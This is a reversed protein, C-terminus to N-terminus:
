EFLAPMALKRVKGTTTLPLQDASIFLYRRPRKYGALAERCLARLEAEDPTSAAEPVILAAVIEDREADPVPVVFAQAVDAHSMLTEEVEAPAVNIGGTKIMEKLRGRFHLYGEDDLYGLDGTLFYGNSDFAAADKDPDHLYGVTVYGRVRIEGVEGPACLAETEANVIIM